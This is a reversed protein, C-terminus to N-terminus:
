RKRINGRYFPVNYQLLGKVEGQTAEDVSTCARQPLATAVAACHKCAIVSNNKNPSSPIVRICMVSLTSQLSVSINKMMLEIVIQNVKQLVQSRSMHVKRGIEGKRKWEDSTKGM